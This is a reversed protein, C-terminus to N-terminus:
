IVRGMDLLEAGQVNAVGMLAEEVKDNNGEDDAVVITTELAKLGFAFPKEEFGKVEAVDPMAAKIDTRLQELDVEPSEPMVRYILLVEGM